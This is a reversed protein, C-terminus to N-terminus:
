LRRDKLPSSGLRLWCSGNVRLKVTLDNHWAMNISVPRYSTFTNTALVEPRGTAQPDVGAFGLDALDLNDVFVDIVRVPNDEDIWDQLCEPFLTGRDRDAGEVFRRM